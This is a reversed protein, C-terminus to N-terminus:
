IGMGIATFTDFTDGSKMTKGIVCMLERDQMSIRLCSFTYFLVGAVIGM